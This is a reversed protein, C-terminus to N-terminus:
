APEGTTRELWQALNGGLVAATDAETLGLERIVAIERAPDAMPWDSGFVVRRAGHRAIVERVRRAALTGLTPPWSTEITVPLGIVQQEAEDLQHFGGFHCAILRLAPFARVIAALMAPTSRANAVPDGGKGIHTIVPIDSGFAELLQWVRPDDLAFGQFLPHLKVGTVGHHRLSDLNEPLPLDPHVTGFPILTGDALSGIFENTRHVHRAQDAIGMVVSRHVGARALCARLGAVTGDGVPTMGPVRGSLARAALRDPWVHTHADIVVTQSSTM